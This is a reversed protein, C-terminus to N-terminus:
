QQRGVAAAPSSTYLLCHYVQESDSTGARNEPYQALAQLLDGARYAELSPALARGAQDDLELEDIDLIAPYYLTWQIVNMADIQASKAPANGMEVVGEEGSELQVQRKYM